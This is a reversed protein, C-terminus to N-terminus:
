QTVKHAVPSKRGREWSCQSTCLAAGKKCSVWHQLPFRGLGGCSGLPGAPIQVCALRSGTNPALAASSMLVSALDLPWTGARLDGDGQRHPLSPCRHSQRPWLESSGICQALHPLRPKPSSLITLQTYVGQRCTVSSPCSCVSHDHLM